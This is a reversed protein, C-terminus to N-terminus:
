AVEPNDSTPARRAKGYVAWVETTASRLVTTVRGVVLM